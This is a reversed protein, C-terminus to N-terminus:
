TSWGWGSATSRSRCARGRVRGRGRAAGLVRAGAGHDARLGGRAARVVSGRAPRGRDLPGVPQPRDLLGRRVQGAGRHRARPRLRDGARPDHGLRPRARAGGPRARAGRRRDRVAGPRQGQRHLRPRGRDAGHERAVRVLWSARDAAALAGLRAPLPGRLARGGAAGAARVRDRVGRARGRDRREGAGPPGRM